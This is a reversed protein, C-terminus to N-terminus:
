GAVRGIARGDGKGVLAVEIANRGITALCALQCGIRSEVGLRDPARVALLNGESGVAFAAQINVDDRGLATRWGSEGGVAALLSRDGELVVVMHEERGVDHRCGLAVEKCRVLERLNVLYACLATTRLQIGNKRHLVDADVLVTLHEIM